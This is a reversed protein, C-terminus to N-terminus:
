DAKQKKVGSPRKGSAREAERFHRVTIQYSKFQELKKIAERQAKRTPLSAVTPDRYAAALESKKQMPFKRTAREESFLADFKSRDIFLPIPDRKM